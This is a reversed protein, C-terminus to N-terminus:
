ICDPERAGEPSSETYSPSLTQPIPALVHSCTNVPALLRPDPKEKNEKEKKRGRKSKKKKKKGKENTNHFNGAM